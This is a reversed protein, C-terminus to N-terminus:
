LHLTPQLGIVTYNWEGHSGHPKMEGGARRKDSITKGTPYGGHDVHARVKFGSRTNAAGFLNVVVQPWQSAPGAPENVHPELASTWHLEVEVQRASVQM